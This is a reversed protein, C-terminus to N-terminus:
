GGFRVDVVRQVYDPHNTVTPCTGSSRNCGTSRVRYRTITGTSTTLAVSECTVTVTFASMDGPLNFSTSAACLAERKAKYVGWEAGAKAAQYARAGQIDLGSTVATSSTIAIMAAGLAALGVLMFIATVLGLGRQAHLRITPKM